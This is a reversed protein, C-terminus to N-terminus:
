LLVSRAFQQDIKLFGTGTIDSLDITSHDRGIVAM